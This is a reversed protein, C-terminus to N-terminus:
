STTKRGQCSPMQWQPKCGQRCYGTVTDCGESGRCHSCPTCHVGYYGTPCATFVLLFHLKFFLIIRM